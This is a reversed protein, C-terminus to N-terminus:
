VGVPVYIAQLLHALVEASSGDDALVTIEEYDRLVSEIYEAAGSLHAIRACAAHIELYRPSPVPLNPDTTTFHVQPYKEPIYGFISEIKYTDEEDTAVFWLDLSDFLERIQTSMTMVNELRHINQGALEDVITSYGFRTTISWAAAAYARKDADVDIGVNISEDFIHCCQTKWAEVNNGVQGRLESNAKLVDADYAKTVVCRFGDRVLARRKASAHSQTAPALFDGIMDAMTDFSPRSECNAPQLIPGENARFLRIFHNYYFLGIELLDSNSCASVVEKVAGQASDGAGPAYHFLYGLIRCCCLDKTLKAKSDKTGIFNEISLQLEGELVLVKNYASSSTQSRGIRAPLDKPLKSM